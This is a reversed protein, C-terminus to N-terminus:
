LYWLNVFEVLLESYGCDLKLEPAPNKKIINYLELFTNCVPYPYKGTILQYIIIGLGWIDSNYSYSNGEM